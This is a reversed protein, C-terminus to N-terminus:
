LLGFFRRAVNRRRPEVVDSIDHRRLRGLLKQMGARRHLQLEELYLPIASLFGIREPGTGLEYFEIAVRLSPAIIVGCYGASGPWSLRGVRAGPVFAQPPDGNAIADGWGLWSNERQPRAALQQLLSIPWAHRLDDQPREFMEKTLPWDEVLTMMLEIRGPAEVAPPVPMRVRSMGCTILTHYPRSAVPAVYLIEIGRGAAPSASTADIRGLHREVHARVAEGRDAASPTSPVPANEDTNM